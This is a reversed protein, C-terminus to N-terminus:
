TKFRLISKLYFYIYLYSVVLSIYFKIATIGLAAVYCQCM